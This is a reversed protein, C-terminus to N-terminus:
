ASRVGGRTVLINSPVHPLSAAPKGNLSLELNWPAGIRL